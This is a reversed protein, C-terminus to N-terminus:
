IIPGIFTHVAFSVVIAVVLLVLVLNLWDSKM